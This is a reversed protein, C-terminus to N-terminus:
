IRKFEKKYEGPTIDFYKVFTKSFNGAHQYGVKLAVDKIISNEKKFFNNQM